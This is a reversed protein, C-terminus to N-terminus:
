RRFDTKCLSVRSSIIEHTNKVLKGYKKEFLPIESIARFVLCKQEESPFISGANVLFANGGKGKAHVKGLVSIDMSGCGANHHELFSNINEINEIPNLVFDEYSVFLTRDSPLQNCAAYFKEWLSVREEENRGAWERGSKFSSKLSQVVGPISRVMCIYLPSTPLKELEPIILANLPTDDVYSSCNDEDAKRTAYTHAYGLMHSVLDSRYTTREDSFIASLYHGIVFFAMYEGLQCVDKKSGVLSGMMTTGSRPAGIVFIPQM